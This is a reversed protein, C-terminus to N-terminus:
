ITCARGLPYHSNILIFPHTGPNLHLSGLFYASNSLITDM